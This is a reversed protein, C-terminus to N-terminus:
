AATDTSHEQEDIEILLNGELALDWTGSTFARNGPRGGLREHIEMATGRAKTGMDATSANPPQGVDPVRRRGTATGYSNRM